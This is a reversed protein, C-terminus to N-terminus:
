GKKRENSQGQKQCQDSVKFYDQVKESFETYKSSLFQRQHIYYITFVQKCTMISGASGEM